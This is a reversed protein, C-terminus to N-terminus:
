KKLDTTWNLVVTIPEIVQEGQPTNVLFRGDAAVDYLGGFLPRVAFLKRPQGAQLGGETKVDVVMVNSRGELYFLEKGDRSWRPQQGGASSVQWKGESRPFGTVYVEPRGSEDSVYAIWKGDPSFQADGENAPTQLFPYPKRDGTLPLISIDTKMQHPGGFADFALLKGDPSLSSPVINNQTQLLLEESGTGDSRKRYLGFPGRANSGYVLWVGDPSWLPYTERASAFTFRSRTGRGVDYIWLNAKSLNPESIAVAIRKGDPSLRPSSYFGPEDVFGLTKGGRDLWALRTDAVGGAQYVLIGDESVSFVARSYLYDYSVGEVVPFAEGRVRLRRPDFPQAVLTGERTYLLHGSAYAVNSSAPLIERNEKGDLSAAFITNSESEMGLPAALYLFHQGDPLFQPWRHTTDGRKADLRTVEIPRGGTARVRFIPSYRNAFLIDGDRNWAGGRGEAADCVTTVPGGSADVKKLKGRAFFGVLRSDPSWFPFSAGETGSLPRATIASLPRVYLLPAGDAGSATFALLRGDPSVAVPGGTGLSNFSTRDPPLVSLRVPRRDAAESRLRVLIAALAVAALVFLTAATGILRRPTQRPRLGTQPSGPGSEAIWKLEKAVDGANQWRDEPDKALCTTVVRDLAPPSAPQAASISPPNASMIATILSAQSAAPFAKKGTAMEYLVAGLAFIDTRADAEKGELQEPAMYQFTGLITGEQTLNNQTPLATLSSPSAAPEMAKALGFDLLKVGSKTLMVNTPKLDRHVIGQRHARDLADAIEQGYRLTQDLPLSGKVLRASLTEGELLEMVLYETDGERGVDFLACVHPHSLQSITKAEREFRQRTESSVSLHQPLVKVAVERGLRTDRARYVEGMGGAGLPSLIEYPGLRAGAALTM